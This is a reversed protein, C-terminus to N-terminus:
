PTLMMSDLRGPPTQSQSFRQELAALTPTQESWQGAARLGRMARRLWAKLRQADGDVTGNPSVENLYAQLSVLCSAFLRFPDVAALNSLWEVDGSDHWEARLIGAIAELTDVFVREVDYADADLEFLPANSEFRCLTQGNQNSTTLLGGFSFGEIAHGSFDYLWFRGPAVRYQREATKANYVISLAIPTAQGDEFVRLSLVVADFVRGTPASALLVDLKEHGIAPNYRSRYFIYGAEASM